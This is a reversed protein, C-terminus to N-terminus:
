TLWGGVRNANDFCVAPSRKTMSAAPIDSETLNEFVATFCGALRPNPDPM